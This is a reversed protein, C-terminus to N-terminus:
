ELLEDDLDSEARPEPDFEPDSFDYEKPHWGQPKIKHNESGDNAVLFGTSVFALEIFRPYTALVAWVRGVWTAMLIRRHSATLAGTVWAIYNTRMEIDYLSRHGVATVVAGAAPTALAPFM